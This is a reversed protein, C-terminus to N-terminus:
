RSQAIDDRMTLEELRTVAGLQSATASGDFARPCIGYRSELSVRISCSEMPPFAKVVIIAHTEGISYLM